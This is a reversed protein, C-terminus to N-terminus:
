RSRRSRLISLVGSLETLQRSLGRTSRKRGDLQKVLAAATLYKASADALAEVSDPAFCRQDAHMVARAASGVASSATYFDAPPPGPNRKAPKAFPYTERAKSPSAEAFVSRMNVVIVGAGGDRKAAAKSARVQAATAAGCDEGTRYDFLRGAYAPNRKATRAYFARTRKAEKEGITAPNRKAIREM